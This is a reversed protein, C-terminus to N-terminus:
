NPCNPNDNHTAAPTSIPWYPRRAYVLMQAFQGRTVTNNPLFCPTSGAPCPPSTTYGNIIPPSGQSAAINIWQRGWHNSIDTFRDSGGYPAYGEAFMLSQAVQARTAPQEVTRYPFNDLNILGNAYPENSVAFRKVMGIAFDHAWHPPNYDLLDAATCNPLFVTGEYDNYTIAGHQFNVVGPGTGSTPYNFTV